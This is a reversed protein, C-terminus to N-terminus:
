RNSESHVDKEIWKQLLQYAEKQTHVNGSVQEEKLAALLSGIRPGSSLKFKKMIQDGGLLQKPNVIRNKKNWWADFLALIVKIFQDFETTKKCFPDNAYYDAISLIATDIGTEGMPLFYRYIERPSIETSKCALLLPKTHNLVVSALYQREAKSLMIRNGFRAAIYSSRNEHRYFHVEGDWDIVKCDLIGADHFLAALLLLSFRTRGETIPNEFHSFLKDRYRSIGKFFSRMEKNEYKLQPYFGSTEKRIDYLNDITSLTHKSVFTFGQKRSGLVDLHSLFIVDFIKMQLMLELANHFNSNEIMLFLEDRIREGSINKLLSAKNVLEKELHSDIDLDLQLKLRIARLIRLPDNMISDSSCLIIKRKKLATEGNLPDILLSPNQIDLAIANITFDRQQLDEIITAGQMMAFDLTVNSKDANKCIVRATKRAPDLIFFVGKLKHAVNRALLISDGCVAFDLDHITLGLLGDRVAGGVLFIADDASKTERIVKLLNHIAKLNM